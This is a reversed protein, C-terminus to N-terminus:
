NSRPNTVPPVFTIAIQTHATAGYQKRTTAHVIQSDDIWARGNLGDIVKLLNDIDPKSTHAWEGALAMERQWKPWSAPPEFTAVLEVFVPGAHPARKGATLLWATLIAQEALKTKADTYTRGQKTFRPRGKPTPKGPIRLNIVEVALDKRQAYTMPSLNDAAVSM